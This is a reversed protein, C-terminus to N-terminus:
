TTHQNINENGFSFEYVANADDESDGGLMYMADRLVVSTVKDIGYEQMVTRSIRLVQRPRQACNAIDTRQSLGQALTHKGPRNLIFNCSGLILNRSGLGVPSLITTCLKLEWLDDLQKDGDNGGFVFFANKYVVATHGSRKPPTEGQTRVEFWISAATHLWYM